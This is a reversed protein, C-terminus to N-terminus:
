DVFFGSLLQFFFGKGRLNYHGLFLWFFRNKIVMVTYYFVKCKLREILIDL